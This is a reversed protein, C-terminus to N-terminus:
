AAGRGARRRQLLFIAFGVVVLTGIGIVIVSPFDSGSDGPAAGGSGPGDPLTLTLFQQDATETTNNSSVRLQCNRYSRVANKTSAAKPALCNFLLQPSPGAFPTFAHNPDTALFTVSGDDRAIAAAPVSGLDCDLPAQWDPATPAKGDCQEVYVSENPTFGTAEVTIAVPKGTNDAPVAVPSTSPKTISTAATAARADVALLVGPGVAVIVLSSLIRVFNISRHHTRPLLTQSRLEEFSTTDNV